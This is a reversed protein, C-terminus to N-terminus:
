ARPWQERVQRGLSTVPAFTNSIKSSLGIHFIYWVFALHKIKHNSPIFIAIYVNKLRIYASLNDIRVRKERTRAEAVNWAGRPTGRCTEAIGIM